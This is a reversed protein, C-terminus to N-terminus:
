YVEWIGPTGLEIVHGDPDHFYLSRGGRSWEVTSIIAVGHQELRNLWAEWEAAPISFAMHIRGTAGHAPIVGGSTPLPESTSDKQFLLFVSAGFGAQLAAFRGETSLFQRLGLVNQYFDSARQVDNVYLATELVPGVRM